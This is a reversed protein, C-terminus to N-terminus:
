CRLESNYSLTASGLFSYYYAHHHFHIPMMWPWTTTPKFVRLSLIFFYTKRQYTKKAGVCPRIWPLRDGGYFRCLKNVMMKYLESFLM